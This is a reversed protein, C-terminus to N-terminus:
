AISADSYYLFGKKDLKLNLIASILVDDM